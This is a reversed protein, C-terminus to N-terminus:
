ALQVNLDNKLISAVTTHVWKGGGRKTKVGLETLHTAIARLSKGAKRLAKILGIAEQEEPNEVMDGSETVDYGYVERCYKKKTSKKHQMATKTREKILSRELQAFGAMMTLILKGMPSSTDLGMGNVDLLHTSVGTNDWGEITWLADASNRFLRDLKASVVHHVKKSRVLEILRQGGPRQSLYKGGSVGDDVIVEVVELHRDACYSLLKSKQADLSVGERAQEDTSVRLYLVAKNSFGKSSAMIFTGNQNKSPVQRSGDTPGERKKPHAKSM